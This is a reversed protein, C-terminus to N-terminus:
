PWASRRDGPLLMDGFPPQGVFDQEHVAERMRRGALQQLGRQALLIPIILKLDSLPGRRLFLPEGPPKGVSGKGPSALGSARDLTFLRTKLIRGAVPAMIIPSCAAAARVPGALRAPAQADGERGGGLADVHQALLPARERELSALGIGKGFM